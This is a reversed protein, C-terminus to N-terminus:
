GPVETLYEERTLWLEEMRYMHWHDHMLIHRALIYLSYQEYEPHEALKGWDSTQAQKLLEIQSSRLQAFDLLAKEVDPRLPLTETEGDEPIYPIFKPQKEHLFREIREQLMPQVQALHDVHQAITWFGEGRQLHIKATPISQVFAKLIDISSALSQILVSLDQVKLRM